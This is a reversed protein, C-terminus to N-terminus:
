LIEQLQQMQQISLHTPFSIYFSCILNGIQEGRQFGLNPLTKQFYPHVRIFSSSSSFNTNDVHYKKGNLHQIEVKWGCLAEKLSLKVTYLLDLGRRQFHEHSKMEILIKVDTQIIKPLTEGGGGGALMYINGKQSLTIIEGDDMGKPVEIYITEFEFSQRGFIDWIMRNVRIPFSGGHFLEEMELALKCQVPVFGPHPHHFDPTSSFFVSSSSSCSPSPSLQSISPSVVVLSPTGGTSVEIEQLYQNRLSQTQLAEYAKQIQEFKQRNSPHHYLLSLRRFAKKVDADTATTPNTIELIDFWSLLPTTTKTTKTAM